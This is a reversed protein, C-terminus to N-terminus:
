LLSEIQAIFQGYSTAFLDIHPALTNLITIANGISSQSVINTRSQPPYFMLHSRSRGYAQPVFLHLESLITPNSIIGNLLKFFHRAYYIDRRHALSCFDLCGM